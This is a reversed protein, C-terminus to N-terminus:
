AAEGPDHLDGEIIKRINVLKERDSIDSNLQHIIGSFLVGTDGGEMRVRSELCADMYQPFLAYNHPNFLGMRVDGSEQGYIILYGQPFMKDLAEQYDERM